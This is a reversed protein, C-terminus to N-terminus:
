IAVFPIATKGLPRLRGTHFIGPAAHAHDGRVVVIIAICVQVDGAVARVNEIAISAVTAKGIGRGGDAHSVLAKARTRSKAIPIEVAVQIQVHGIIQVEAGVRVASTEALIADPDIARRPGIRGFRINEIAVVTAAEGLDARFHAKSRALRPLQARDKGIPIEIPIQVQKGRAIPRGIQEVLVLAAMERFHTQDGPNGVIALSLGFGTHAHGRAIPVVIPGKIKKHRIEVQLGIGQVVVLALPKEAVPRRVGFQTLGRQRVQSPARSKEIPIQVAVLIEEHSIAVYVVIHFKEGLGRVRLGILQEPVVTRSPKGLDANRGPKTSHLRASPHGQAIAVVIAVEINRHGVDVRTGRKQAIVHAALAVIQGDARYAHLAVAIADARADADADPRPHM